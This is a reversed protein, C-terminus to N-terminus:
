KVKGLLKAAQTIEAGSPCIDFGCVRIGAYGWAGGINVYLHGTKTLARGNECIRVVYHTFERVDEPVPLSDV